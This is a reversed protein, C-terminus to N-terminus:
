LNALLERSVVDFLELVFDLDRVERKTPEVNQIDEVAHLSKLPDSEKM